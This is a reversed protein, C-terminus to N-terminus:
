CRVVSCLGPTHGADDPKKLNLSLCGVCKMIIEGHIETEHFKAVVVRCCM